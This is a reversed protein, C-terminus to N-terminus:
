VSADGRIEKMRKRIDLLVSLIPLACPQSINKVDSLLSTIVEGYTVPLQINFVWYQKLNNLKM